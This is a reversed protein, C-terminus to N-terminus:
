AADREISFVVHNNDTDIVLAKTSKPEQDVLTELMSSISNLDNSYYSVIIENGQHIEASYKCNHNMMVEM